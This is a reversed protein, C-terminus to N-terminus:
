WQAAKCLSPHAVALGEANTRTAGCMACVLDLPHQAVGTAGAVVRQEADYRRFFVALGLADTGGFGLLGVWFPKASDAPLVRHWGRM